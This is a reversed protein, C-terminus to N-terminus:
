LLTSVLRARDFSRYVRMPADASKVTNRSRRQCARTSPRRGTRACRLSTASMSCFGCTVTTQFWDSVVSAPADLAARITVPRPALEAGQALDVDVVEAQEELVRPRDAVLQREIKAEAGLLFHDRRVAAVQVADVEAEAVLQRRAGAKRVVDLTVALPLRVTRPAHEVVHHLEFQRATREAAVHPDLLVVREVRELPVGQHDVVVLRAPLDVDDVEADRRVIRAQGSHPAISGSRLGNLCCSSTTPM